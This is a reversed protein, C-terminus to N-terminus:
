ANTTVVHSSLAAWAPQFTVGGSIFYRRYRPQLINAYPDVYLQLIEGPSLARNYFRVHALLVNNSGYYGDSRKCFYVNGNANYWAGGSGSATIRTNIYISKSAGASLFVLDNWTNLTIAQSSQIDTGGNYGIYPKLDGAAGYNAEWNQTGSGIARTITQPYSGAARALLRCFVSYSGTSAPTSTGLNVSDNSGDFDLAGGLPSAVWDSSPDM